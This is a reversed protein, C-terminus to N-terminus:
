QCLATIYKTQFFLNKFIYLILLTLVILPMIAKKSCTFMKWLENFIIDCSVGLNTEKEQGSLDM